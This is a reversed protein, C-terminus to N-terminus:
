WLVVSNKYCKKKKRNVCFNQHTRALSLQRHVGFISPPETLVKTVGPLIKPLCNPPSKKYSVGVKRCIQGEKDTLTRSKWYRRQEDVNKPFSFVTGDDLPNNTRCPQNSFSICRKQSMRECTQWVIFDFHCVSTMDLKPYNQFM